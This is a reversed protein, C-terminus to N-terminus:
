EGIGGKSNVRQKDIKARSEGESTPRTLEALYLNSIHLVIIHRDNGFYNNIYKKILTPFIHLVRGVNVVNRLNGLLNEWGRLVFFAVVVQRKIVREKIDRHGSYQLSCAVM